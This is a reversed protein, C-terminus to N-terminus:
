LVGSPVRSAAALHRTWRLLLLLHIELFSLLGPLSTILIGGPVHGRLSGDCRALTHCAGATTHTRHHSTVVRCARRGEAPHPVASGVPSMRACCRPRHVPEKLSAGDRPLRRDLHVGGIQGWQSSLRPVWRRRWMNSPLPIPELPSALREIERCSFVMALVGPTQQATCSVSSLVRWRWM